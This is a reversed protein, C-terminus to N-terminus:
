TFDIQINGGSQINTLEITGSTAGVSPTTNTSLPIIVTSASYQGTGAIRIDYSGGKAFKLQKDNDVFPTTLSTCPLGAVTSGSRGSGSCSLTSVFTNEDALDQSYVGVFSGCSKVQLEKQGPSFFTKTMYYHTPVTCDHVMRMPVRTFYVLTSEEGLVDLTFVLATGEDTDGRITMNKVGEPLAFSVTTKSGKSYTAISEINDIIGNGVQDIRATNIEVTVQSSSKYFFILTTTLLLFGIAFVMIFEFSVQGRGKM